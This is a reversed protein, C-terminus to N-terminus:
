FIEKARPFGTFDTGQLIPRIENLYRHFWGKERDYIFDSSFNSSPVKLERILQNLTNDYNTECILEMANKAVFPNRLELTTLPRGDIYEEVRYESTHEIERPGWGREGM